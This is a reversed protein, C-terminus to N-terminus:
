LKGNKELVGRGKLFYAAELSLWSTDEGFLLKMFKSVFNSYVEYFHHGVRQKWLAQYWM